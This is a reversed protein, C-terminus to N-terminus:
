RWTSPKAVAASIAVVEATSLTAPLRRLWDKVGRPAGVFVATPEEKITWEDALIALVPRVDVPRDLSTSLLRSARSAESVSKRLYDTPHGNHRISRAGIWIKGTLNKANVTFVGAPGVIVHDINAGREGVPVDNFLHWGEPLRGLWWATVREGGAGRRWAREDTHLGLLRALGTRVPSAARLAHAQEAASGGPRRGVLTDEVTVSAWRENPNGAM